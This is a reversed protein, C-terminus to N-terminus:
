LSYLATMTNHGKYVSHFSSAVVGDLLHSHDVTNMHAPTVIWVRVAHWMHAKCFMNLGERLEHIHIYTLIYIELCVLM